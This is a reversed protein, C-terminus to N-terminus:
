KELGGGFCISYLASGADGHIRDLSSSPGRGISVVSSAGNRNGDLEGSGVVGTNAAEGSGVGASRMCAATAACEGISAGATTAGGTILRGPGGGTFIDPVGAAAM